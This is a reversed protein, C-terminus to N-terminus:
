KVLVIDPGWYMRQGPQLLYSYVSPDISSVPFYKNTLAELFDIRIEGARIECGDMVGTFLLTADSVEPSVSHDTHYEYVSIDKGRQGQTSILNLWPDNDGNPLKLSGGSATLRRVEIGSAQWTISNWSIPNNYTAVYRNIDPSAQDWGMFILYIPRTPNLGVATSTTSSVTRTM